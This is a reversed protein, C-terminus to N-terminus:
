HTAPLPLPRRLIGEALLNDRNLEAPAFHWRTVKNAVQRNFVEALPAYVDHTRLGMEVHGVKVGDYFGAMASALTTTTEGHDLLTDQRHEAFVERM